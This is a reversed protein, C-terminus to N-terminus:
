KSSDDQVIDITEPLQNKKYSKWVLVCITAFVIWTLSGWMSSFVFSTILIASIIIGTQKRNQSKTVFVAALIAGIIGIIVIAVSKTDAASKGNKCSACEYRGDLTGGDEKTLATFFNGCNNCAMPTYSLSM